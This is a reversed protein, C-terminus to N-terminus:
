NWVTWFNLGSQRSVTGSFDLGSHGFVTRFIWGLNNSFLGSFGANLGMIELSFQVTTGAGFVEVM